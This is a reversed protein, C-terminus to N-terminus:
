LDFEDLSRPLALQWCEGDFRDELDGWQLLTGAPIGLEPMHQRILARAGDIDTADVDLICYCIEPERDDDESDCFLTGGGESCGMGALRLEADLYVSYRYHREFPDIDGPIIISMCTCDVPDKMKDRLGDLFREIM